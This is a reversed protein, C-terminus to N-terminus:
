SATILNAELSSFEVFIKRIQARMRELKTPSLSNIVGIVRALSSPRLSILHWDIYDSFPLVHNPVFIVPIVTSQLARYLALKFHPMREHILVFKSEGVLKEWQVVKGASDCVESPRDVCEALITVDPSHAFAESSEERFSSSANFLMVLLNSRTPSTLPKIAPLNGFYPPLSIDLRHRYLHLPIIPSREDVIRIIPQIYVSVRHYDLMCRQSRLCTSLSCNRYRKMTLACMKEIIAFFKEQVREVTEISSLTERKLFRDGIHNILLALKAKMASGSLPPSAISRLLNGQRQQLQTLRAMEQRLRLKEERERALEERLREAETSGGGTQANVRKVVDSSVGVTKYEEPIENRDIRVVDPQEEQSQASGM